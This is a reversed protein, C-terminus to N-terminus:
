TELYRATFGRGSHTPTDSGVAHGKGNITWGAAILLQRAEELTTAVDAPNSSYFNLEIEWAYGHAANDYVMRNETSTNWFTFFRDPYAADQALSGQEFIVNCLPKVTDIMKEIM